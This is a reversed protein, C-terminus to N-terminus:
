SYIKVNIKKDICKDVLYKLDQITFGNLRSDLGCGIAPMAIEYIERKILVSSLKRLALSLGKIDMPPESSKIKTIMHVFKTDHDFYSFGIPLKRERIYKLASKSVKKRMLVERAFGAGFTADSGIAHVIYRKSAFIDPHSEFELPLYLVDTKYEIFTRFKYPIEKEICALKLEKVYKNFIKEGHLCLERLSVDINALLISQEQPGRKTWQFIELIVNIDLPAIYRQSMNDFVFKRKLFAVDSLERVKYMQGSKAEDTYEHGIIEFAKTITEQNFWEIILKCIAILDDDGYSVMAVHNDFSDMNAWTGARFNNEEEYKRACLLYVIRVVISNYISNLVATLPCGSPQSHTTQYIINRNIHMAHVINMWLTRRIMANEPGDDYWEQIIEFIKWLIQSSLSGDFNAFDGAVINTTGDANKGKTLLLRAIDDWDQSFVNTGTSIENRNRNSMVWAAFGLFYQRFAITFHVPGGCFVRTKGLRVKELPRREDKLTDSWLVDKQIGKKANEILDIVDGQIQKALPTDMTWEDVGFAERKGSMNSRKLTYPYGLSTGRNIPALFEVDRVGQVAEVYTLVRSYIARDLNIFNIKLNNEVSSSAMDILAPNIYPPVKGFKILGLKMPDVGNSPKMQTPLTAHPTIRDFLPSPIIKTKGGSTVSEEESVNGIVNLGARTPVSELDDPGEIPDFLKQVEIIPYCQLFYPVSCLAISLMEQTILQSIGLYNANGAVHIGVLKNSVAKNFIVLPAGCDGAVTLSSYEWRDRIHIIEETDAVKVTRMSDNSGKVNEAVKCSIVFKSKLPSSMDFYSLLSAKYKDSLVSISNNTAFLSIINVHTGVKTKKPDLVVLCADIDEGNKKLRFCSDYLDKLTFTVVSPGTHNSLHVLTKADRQEYLLCSVFHYPILFISGQIFLANGRIVNDRTTGVQFTYLNQAIKINMARAGEDAVGESNLSDELHFVNRTKINVDASTAEIRINNRSNLNPTDSSAAAELRITELRIKNQTTSNPEGSSNSAEMILDLNKIYELLEEEREKSTGVVIQEYAQRQLQQKLITLKDIELADKTADVRPTDAFAACGYQTVKFLISAMLFMTLFSKCTSFVSDLNLSVFYEKVRLSLQACWEYFSTLARRLINPKEIMKFVLGDIPTSELSMLPETSDHNNRIDSVYAFMDPYQALQTEYMQDLDSFKYKGAVKENFWTTFQSVKQYMYSDTKLSDDIADEYEEENNQALLDSYESYLRYYDLKHEERSSFIEDEARVEELFEAYNLQKGINEDTFMDYRQFIYMHPCFPMRGQQVFAPQKDEPVNQVIDCLTALCKTCNAIKATDLRRVTQGDRSVEKEFEPHNLVRYANKALRRVAAEPKHLSAIFRVFDHTINTTYLCNRSTFYTGKSNLDACHVHAPATNNLRVAEMFEVSPNSVSDKVQFADDFIAIDQGCYGDWFETEYNRMYIELNIDGVYKRARLLSAALPILLESKGVGSEGSLLVCLPAVRPGGEHASSKSATKYLDQAFPVMSTIIRQCEVPLSKWITTTHKWRLMQRFLHEIEIVAEANKSVDKRTQYALYYEIRRAWAEIEKAQESLTSLDERNAGLAFVQFEQWVYDFIEGSKEWTRKAGDCAKPIKDLRNILSDYFKEQPIQSMAFFSILALLIKGMFHLPETAAQTFFNGCAHLHKKVEDIITQNWGFYYMTMLIMPAITHVNAVQYAAFIIVITLVLNLINMGTTLTNLSNNLKGLLSGEETSKLATLMDNIMALTDAAIVPLAAFKSVVPPLDEACKAIMEECNEVTNKIKDVSSLVKQGEVATGIATGVGPLVLNTIGYSASRLGASSTCANYIDTFTSKFSDTRGQTWFQQKTYKQLINKKTEITRKKEHQRKRAEQLADLRLKRNVLKYQIAYELQNLVESTSPGPNSEVDGCRLLDDIHFANDFVRIRLPIFHRDWYDSSLCSIRHLDDIYRAYRAIINEPSFRPLYLACALKPRKLLEFDYEIDKLYYFWSTSTCVYLCPKYSETNDCAFQRYLTAIRDFWFTSFEDIPFTIDRVDKARLIQVNVLDIMKNEQVEDYLCYLNDFLYGEDKFSLHAMSLQFLSPVQRCKIDAM